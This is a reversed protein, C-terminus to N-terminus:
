QVEYVLVIGILSHPYPLCNTPGFQASIINGPNGEGSNFNALDFDGSFYSTNTNCNKMVLFPTENLSLMLQHGSTEIKYSAEYVKGPVSILFNPKGCRLGSLCNAIITMKNARPYEFNFYKIQSLDCELKASECVRKLTTELVTGQVKPKYEQFNYQVIEAMKEDRLYYAVIWGDLGIYVHPFTEGLGNPYPFIRMKGILYSEGQKTIEVFPIQSLKEPTIEKVKLYAAIGAEEVPFTSSTTEQAKISKKSFFFIMGIGISAFIIALILKKKSM